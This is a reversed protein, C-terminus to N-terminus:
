VFTKDVPRNYQGSLNASCLYSGEGLLFKPDQAVTRGFTRGDWMMAYPLFVQATTGM